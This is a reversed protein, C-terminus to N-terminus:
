QQLQTIATSIVLLQLGLIVSTCFFKKRLSLLINNLINSLELACVETLITTEYSPQYKEKEQPARKEM